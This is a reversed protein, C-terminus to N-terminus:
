FVLWPIDVSSPWYTTSKCIGGIEPARDWIQLAVFMMKKVVKKAVEASSV